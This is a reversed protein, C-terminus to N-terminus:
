CIKFSHYVMSSGFHKAQDYSFIQEAQSVVTSYFFNDNFSDTLGSVELYGVYCIYEERKENNNM